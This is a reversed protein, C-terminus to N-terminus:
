DRPFGDILGSAAGGWVILRSWLTGFASWFRVNECGYGMMALLTVSLWCHRYDGAAPLPVCSPGALLPPSTHRCYLVTAPAPSRFHRFYESCRTSALLPVM